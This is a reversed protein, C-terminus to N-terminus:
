SSNDVIWKFAPDLNEMGSPAWHNDEVAPPVIKSKNKAQHAKTLDNWVKVDKERAWGFLPVNEIPRLPNAPVKFPYIDLERDSPIWLEIHSKMEQPKLEAKISQDGLPGGQIEAYTQQKATSLTAWARDDGYSWLKIGSASKEDAVHYLGIGLSPTF